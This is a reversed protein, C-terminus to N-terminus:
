SRRLVAIINSRQTARAPTRLRRIWLLELLALPLILAFVASTSLLQLEAIEFGADAAHRRIDEPDNARYHTPFVDKSARGDLVRALGQKVGDPLMRAVVTPFATANPTHFIVHGGPALVRHLERLMASPVSVHEMVMNATVLSFSGDAFPLEGVSSLCLLNLSTNDRLSDFDLDVGVVAAARSILAREADRRWEPLLRRGCGLDLWRTASTVYRFLTNEYQAQSSDLGPVIWQELKWYARFLARYGIM